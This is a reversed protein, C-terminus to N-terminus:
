AERGEPFFRRGGILRWRWCLLVGGGRRGTSSGICLVASCCFDVAMTLQKPFKSFDFNKKKSIGLYRFDIGFVLPTVSRQVMLTQVLAM